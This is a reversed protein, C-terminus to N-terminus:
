ALEYDYSGFRFSTGTVSAASSLLVVLQQGKTFKIRLGYRALTAAANLAGAGTTSVTCTSGTTIAAGAALVLTTGSIVVDVLMEGETQFVIGSALAGKEMPLTGTVTPSTGILETATLASGGILKGSLADGDPTQPTRLVVIYDAYLEGVVSTDAQGQVCAFFNGADYTKIDLNSALAGYRNYRSKLKQLDERRCSLVASQWPATRVASRYSMADSKSEPASDAADFDPVLLVTGKYSTPSETEFVFDLKEWEHSEYNKAIRSLWPFTEALGPNIAYDSVAFVDSGQLESFYERHAIRIDGNPLHQTKPGANQRIRTQAVPAKVLANPRSSAQGEKKSSAGRGNKASSKPRQKPASSIM